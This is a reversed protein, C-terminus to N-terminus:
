LLWHLPGPIGRLHTWSLDDRRNSIQRGPVDRANIQNGRAFHLCGGASLDAEWCEEEGDSEKAKPLDAVPSLSKRISHPLGRFPREVFLGASRPFRYLSQPAPNGRFRFWRDRLPPHTHKAGELLRAYREPSIVLGLVGGVIDFTREGTPLRSYTIEINETTTLGTAEDTREVVLLQIGGIETRPQRRLTERDGLRSGTWLQSDPRGGEPRGRDAPGGPEVGIVASDERNWDFGGNPRNGLDVLGWLGWIVLLAAPVIWRQPYMGVEKNLRRALMSPASAVIQWWFWRLAVRRGNQPLVITEAEEILDGEFEERRDAPLLLRLLSRAVPGPFDIGLGEKDETAPNVIGSRDPPRTGQHGEADSGIRGPCGAARSGRPGPGQLVAQGSRPAAPTSEGLASSVFGKDELRDLTAYIAGLSVQRGSNDEIERRVTMGYAGEGLRMVALIVLQEFDGLHKGKAM